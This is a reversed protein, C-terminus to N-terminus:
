GEAGAVILAGPLVRVTLSDQEGAYDGDFEVPVARDARISVERGRLLMAQAGDGPRRQM